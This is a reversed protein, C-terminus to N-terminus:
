STPRPTRPSAPATESAASSTRGTGASAPSSRSATRPRRRAPDLQDRARRHRRPPGVGDVQPRTPATARRGGRLLLSQALAGAGPRRRRHRRPRGGDAGHLRLRRPGPLPGGLLDVTAFATFAPILASGKKWVYGRDQITEMISAYTSPRGVGLEELRRVLSAETYRPRRTADRPRRRPRGSTWSPARACRRCAPAAGEADDDTARWTRSDSAPLPSSRGARRSSSRSAPRPGDPRAPRDRDRRHRRDDPQGGHAAVGPRVGQGRRREAGVGARRPHRWEDGAPRIAEHAEQANKM